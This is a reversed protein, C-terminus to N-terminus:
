KPSILLQKDFAMIFGRQCVPASVLQNLWVSNDHRREDGGDPQLLNETMLIKAANASQTIIELDATLPLQWCCDTDPARVLTWLEGINHWISLPNKRRQCNKSAFTCNVYRPLPTSLLLLKFKFVSCTERWLGCCKCLATGHNKHLINTHHIISLEFNVSTM